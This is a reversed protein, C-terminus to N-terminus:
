DITFSRNGKLTNAPGTLHTKKNGEYKLTLRYIETKLLMVWAVLCLCVLCLIPVVM